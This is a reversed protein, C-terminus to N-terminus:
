LYRQGQLVKILTLLFMFYIIHLLVQIAYWFFIKLSLMPAYKMLAPLLTLMHSDSHFVKWIYPVVLVSAQLQSYKQQKLFLSCHRYISPSFSYFFLLDTNVTLGQLDNCASLNESQTAPTWKFTQSFSIFPM